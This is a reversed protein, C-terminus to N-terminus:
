CSRSAVFRLGEQWAQLPISGYAFGRSKGGGQAQARGKGAQGRLGRLRLAGGELGLKGAQGATTDFHLAQTTM